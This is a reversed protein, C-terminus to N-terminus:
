FLRGTKLNPREPEAVVLMEEGRRCRVKEEERGSWSSWGVEWGVKRERWGSRGRGKRRKRRREREREKEKEKERERERERERCYPGRWGSQRWRM